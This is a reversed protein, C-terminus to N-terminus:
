LVMVPGISDDVDPNDMYKAHYSMIVPSGQEHGLCHLGNKLSEIKSQTLRPYKWLHIYMVNEEFMDTTCTLSRNIPFLVKFLEDVEKESPNTFNNPNFFKYM